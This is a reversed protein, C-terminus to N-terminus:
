MNMVSEMYFDVLFEFPLFLLVFLSLWSVGMDIEQGYYKPEWLQEQRENYKRFPDYIKKYGPRNAYIRSMYYPNRDYDKVTIFDHPPEDPIEDSAAPRSRGGISKLLTPRRLGAAYRLAM